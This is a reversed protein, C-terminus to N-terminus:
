AACRSIFAALALVLAGAIPCRRARAGTATVATAAVILGAGVLLGVLGLLLALAAASAPRRSRGSGRADPMEPADATAQRPMTRASM